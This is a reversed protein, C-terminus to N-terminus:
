GIPLLFPPLACSQVEAKVFFTHLVNLFKKQVTTHLRRYLSRFGLSFIMLVAFLLAVATEVVALNYHFTNVKKTLLLFHGSTAEAPSVARPRKPMQKPADVRRGSSKEGKLGSSETPDDNADEATISEDDAPSVSGFGAQYSHITNSTFSVAVFVLSFAIFHVIMTFLSKFHVTMM